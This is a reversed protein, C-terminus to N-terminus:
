HKEVQHTTNTKNNKGDDEKSLTNQPSHRMREGRSPPSRDSVAGLDAALWTPKSMDVEEDSSLSSDDQGSFFVGRM